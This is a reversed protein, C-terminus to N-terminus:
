ISREQLLRALIKHDRGPILRCHRPQNGHRLIRTYYNKNVPTGKNQKYPTNILIDIYHASFLIALSIGEELSTM